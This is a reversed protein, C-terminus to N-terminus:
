HFVKIVCLKRFLPIENELTVFNNESINAPKQMIGALNILVKSNIAPLLSSYHKLKCHRPQATGGFLCKPWIGTFSTSVGGDGTPERGQMMHQHHFIYWRGQAGVAPQTADTPILDSRHSALFHKM